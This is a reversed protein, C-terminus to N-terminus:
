TELEELGVWVCFTHGHKGYRPEKRSWKCNQVHFSGGFHGHEKHKSKRAGGLGSVFFAALKAANQADPNKVAGEMM